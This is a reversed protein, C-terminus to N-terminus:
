IQKRQIPFQRKFADFLDHALGVISPVNDASRCLLIESRVLKGPDVKANQM